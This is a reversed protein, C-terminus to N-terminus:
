KCSAQKKKLASAAGLVGLGLLSFTSTNEPVATVTIRGEGGAPYDAATVTGGLSNTIYNTLAQQYPINLDNFSAGGFSYDDGGTALFHITAISVSPAGTVVSGNRVLETGNDLTVSQIRNGPTLSPTYDFNFGAIQAFRGDVSEVQSVANELIDKFTSANITPFVDVDGPFPLINSIDADTLSGSPIISDNRIAGANIIAVDANSPDLIAPFQSAQWLLSDAVLNGLNTEQTRIDNRVGNLPVETTGIQTQAWTPQTGCFAVTLLATGATALIKSFNKM